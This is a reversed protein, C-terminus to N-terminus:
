NRAGDPLSILGIPSGTIPDGPQLHLVSLSDVRFTGSNGKMTVIVKITNVVGTLPESTVVIEKFPYTGKNLKNAPVKVIETAGGSYTIIMKIQAGSNLNVGSTSVKLRLKHDEVITVVNSTQSITNTVGPKGTFQFYCSGSDAINANCVRKAGNLTGFSWIAPKNNGAGPVEFGGNNTVNDFEEGLDLIHVNFKANELIATTGGGEHNRVGWQDSTGDYIVGFASDNYVETSNTWLATVMLYAFDENNLLPNDILTTSATSTATHRFAADSPALVEINFTAGVPMDEGDQNFIRWKGGSYWVGVEHPNFIDNPEWNQTVMLIASPNGNTRPDNIITVNDDIPSITDATVTHKFVNGGTGGVQVVFAAGDPMAADDQNFISWKQDEDSYWVGIPHANYVGTNYTSFQITFTQTVFLVAKPNNNTLPNNILTYNDAINGGNAEHVFIHGYSPFAQAEQPMLGFVFSATVIVAMWRMLNSLSLTRFHM